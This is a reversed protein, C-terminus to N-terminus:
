PLKRKKLYDSLAGYNFGNKKCWEEASMNAKKKNCSRCATLYNTEDNNGGLELPVFHDVTMSSKGMEAGCYQCKFGDAAWVKQQIAGSVEWRVKRQFIKATGILIEPDDSRRIFENWDEDSLEEIHKHALVPIGPLMLIAQAGAGGIVLGQIKLNTGIDGWVAPRHQLKLQYFRDQSGM